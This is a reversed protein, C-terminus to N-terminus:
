RTPAFFFCKCRGSAKKRAWRITRLSARADRTLCHLHLKRVASAHETSEIPKKIVFLLCFESNPNCLLSLYTTSIHVM